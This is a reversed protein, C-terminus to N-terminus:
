KSAQPNYGEKIKGKNDLWDPLGWLKQNRGKQKDKVAAIAGEKKKISLSNSIYRMLKEKDHQDMKKPDELMEYIEASQMFRRAKTIITQVQEPISDQKKRRERKTTATPKATKKPKATTKVARRKVDKKKKTKGAQVDTKQSKLIHITSNIAEIDKEYQKQLEEKRKQLFDIMYTSDM